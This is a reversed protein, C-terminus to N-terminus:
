TSPITCFLSEVVLVTTPQNLSYMKLSRKISEIGVNPIFQLHVGITSTVTFLSAVEIFFDEDSIKNKLLFAKMKGVGTHPEKQFAWKWRFYHVSAKKSISQSMPAGSSQTAATHTSQMGKLLEQSILTSLQQFSPYKLAQMKEMITTTINTVDMINLKLDNLLEQTNKEDVQFLMELYDIRNRLVLVSVKDM